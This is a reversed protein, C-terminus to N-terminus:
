RANKEDSLNDGSGQPCFPTTRRLSAAGAVLKGIRHGARCHMSRRRAVDVVVPGFHQDPARPRV